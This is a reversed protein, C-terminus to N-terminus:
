DSRRKPGFVMAMVSIALVVSFVVTINIHMVALHRNPHCEEVTVTFGLNISRQYSWTGTKVLKVSNTGTFLKICNLWFPGIYIYQPTM